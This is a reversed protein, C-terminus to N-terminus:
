SLRENLGQLFLLYNERIGDCGGEAHGKKPGRM